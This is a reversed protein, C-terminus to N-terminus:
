GFHGAAILLSGTGVFPDLVLDGEKIQGMNAKDFGDVMLFALEHDTTTPGLYIRNKLAYASCFSVKEKKNSAVERLTKVIEKGFFVRDFYKQGTKKDLKWNHIVM